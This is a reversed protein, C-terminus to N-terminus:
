SRSLSYDSVSTLAVCLKIDDDDDDAVDDDDDSDSVTATDVKKQDYDGIM